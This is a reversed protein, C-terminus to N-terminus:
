TGKRVAACADRRLELAREHDDTLACKMKLNDCSLAVYM